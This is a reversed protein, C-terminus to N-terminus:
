RILLAIGTHETDDAGHILQAIASAYDPNGRLEEIDFMGMQIALDEAQSLSSVSTDGQGFYVRYDSMDYKDTPNLVLAFEDIPVFTKLGEREARVRRVFEDLAAVQASHKTGPEKYSFPKVKTTVGGDTNLLHVVFKNADKDDLLQIRFNPDIGVVLGILEPNQM